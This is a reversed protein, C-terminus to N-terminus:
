THIQRRAGALSPQAPAARSNPARPRAGQWSTFQARAPSRKALAAFERRLARSGHCVLSIYAAPVCELIKTELEDNQAKLQALDSSSITAAMRASVAQLDSVAGHNVIAAKASYGSKGSKRISDNKALV